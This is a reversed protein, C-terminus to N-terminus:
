DVQRGFRVVTIRTEPSVTGTSSGPVGATPASQLNRFVFIGGRTKCEAYFMGDARWLLRARKEPREAFGPARMPRLVPFKLFSSSM